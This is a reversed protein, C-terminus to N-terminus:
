KIIEYIFENTVKGENLLHKTLLGINIKNNEKNILEKMFLVVIIM